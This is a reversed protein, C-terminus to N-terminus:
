FYATEVLGYESVDAISSFVSLSVRIHYVQCWCCQFHQDAMRPQLNFSLFRHALYRPNILVLGKGEATTIFGGNKLVVSPKAKCEWAPSHLALSFLQFLGM